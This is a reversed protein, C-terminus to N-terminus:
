VAIHDRMGSPCCALYTSLGRARRLDPHTFPWAEEAEIGTEVYKVNPLEERNVLLNGERMRVSIDRKIVKGGLVYGVFWM